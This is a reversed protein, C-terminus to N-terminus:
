ITARRAKWLLYPPNSLSCRPCLHIVVNSRRKSRRPKGNKSKRKRDIVTSIFKPESVRWHCSVPRASRPPRRVISDMFSGKPLAQGLTIEFPLPAIKQGFRVMLIAASKHDTVLECIWESGHGDFAVVTDGPKARNVAVLHHSEEPSLTINVPETSPPACFVRFDPM